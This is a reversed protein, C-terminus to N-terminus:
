DRGYHAIEYVIVKALIHEVIIGEEAVIAPTCAETSIYLIFLMLCIAFVYLKIVAETLTKKTVPNM